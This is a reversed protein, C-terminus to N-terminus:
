NAPLPLSPYPSIFRSISLCGIWLPFDSPSLRFHAAATGGENELHLLPQWGIERLSFRKRRGQERACKAHFLNDLSALFIMVMQM